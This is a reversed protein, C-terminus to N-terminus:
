RERTNPVEMGGDAKYNPLWTVPVLCHMSASTVHTGESNLCKFASAIIEDGGTKEQEISHFLGLTVKTVTPSSWYHFALLDGFVPLHLYILAQVTDQPCEINLQNIKIRYETWFLTSAVVSLSEKLCPASVNLHTNHLLARAVKHFISSLPSNMRRLSWVPSIGQVLGWFFPWQESWQREM